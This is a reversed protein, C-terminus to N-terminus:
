LFTSIEFKNKFFSQFKANHGIPFHLVALIKSIPLWLAFRLGLWKPSPPPLTLKSTYTRSFPCYKIEHLRSQPEAEWTVADPQWIKVVRGLWRDTEQQRRHERTSDESPFTEAYTKQHISTPNLESSGQRGGLTRWRPHKRSLSFDSRLNSLPLDLM